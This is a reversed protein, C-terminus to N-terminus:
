DVEGQVEKMSVYRLGTEVGPGKSVVRVGRVDVPGAIRKLPSEVKRMRGRGRNREVEWYPSGCRKNACRMPRGVYPEWEYGCRKCKVM